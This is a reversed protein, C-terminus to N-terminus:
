ELEARERRREREVVPAMSRQAEVDEVLTVQDQETHRAACALFLHMASAADIREGSRGPLGLVSARVRARDLTTLMREVVEAFRDADLEEERGAGFLFLKEFPLRPRTPVLVTEGQAGRARGRVLLKSIQGCLRWDVLGLAGRLPREDEFFALALAESKLRDLKRLDPAVFRVEM